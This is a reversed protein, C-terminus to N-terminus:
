HCDCCCCLLWVDPSDPLSDLDCRSFLVNEKVALGLEQLAIDGVCADCPPKSALTHSHASLRPPLPPPFLLFLQPPQSCCSCSGQVQGLSGAPRGLRCEVEGCLQDSRSLEDVDDVSCFRLKTFRVVTFKTFNVNDDNTKLFIQDSWFM